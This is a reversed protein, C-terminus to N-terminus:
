STGEKALRDRVPCICSYRCLHDPDAAAHMARAWTAFPYIHGRYHVIWRHIERDVVIRPRILRAGRM